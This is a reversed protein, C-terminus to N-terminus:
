DINSRVPPTSATRVGHAQRPLGMLSVVFVIAALVVVILWHNTTRHRVTQEFGVNTNAALEM